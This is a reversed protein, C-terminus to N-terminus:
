GRKLTVSFPTSLTTENFKKISGQTLHYKIRFRQSMRRKKSLKMGGKILAMMKLNSMTKFKIMKKKLKNRM